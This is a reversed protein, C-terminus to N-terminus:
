AAPVLIAVAVLSAISLRQPLLQMTVAFNAYLKPPTL